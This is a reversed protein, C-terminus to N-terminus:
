GWIVVPICYYSLEKNNGSHGHYVVGLEVSGKYQFNFGYSKKGNSRSVNEWVVACWGKSISAQHLAVLGIQRIVEDNAKYGKLVDIKM